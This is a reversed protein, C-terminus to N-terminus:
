RSEVVSNLAEFLEQSPCNGALLAELFHAPLRVENRESLRTAKELLSQDPLPNDFDGVPSIVLKSVVGRTSDLHVRAPVKLPYMADLQDDVKVHVKEALEVIRPDAILADLDLQLLADAGLMVGVAVAFPVSFQASILDVPCPQNPLTAARTFTEISIGRVVADHPLERILDIAADVASHMWRCCAYRKFYTTDIFFRGPNSSADGWDRYMGPNSFSSDYGRMGVEALGAASFGAIVSWPIGEKLDGGRFGSHDAALLNPAHSEAITLAHQTRTADFGRLKAVAAAVGIASWRGTAVTAQAAASRMSACAVGVEYGAVIALLMEQLSSNRQQAEALVAPIIAAGPHGAAVRHGDDLDLISTATANVYAAGVPSLCRESFWVGSSGAPFTLEAWRLAMSTAPHAQGAAACGVADILCRRAAHLTSAPVDAADLTVLRSALRASVENSM